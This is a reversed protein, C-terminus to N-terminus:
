VADAHTNRRLLVLGLWIFWIVQGLGFLGTLSNLIPIVTLIGLAGVAIGLVYVGSALGGT